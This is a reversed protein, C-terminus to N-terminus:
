QPLGKVIGTALNNNSIHWGQTAAPRLSNRRSADVETQSWVFGPSLAVLALIVLTLILLLVVPSLKFRLKMFEEPFHKEERFTFKPDAGLWRAPTTRGADRLIM